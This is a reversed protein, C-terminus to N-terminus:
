NNGWRKQLYFKDLFATCNIRKKAIYKPARLKLVNIETLFYKPYRIGDRVYIYVM